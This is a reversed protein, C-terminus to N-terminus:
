AREVQGPIVFTVVFFQRHRDTQGKGRETAALRKKNSTLSIKSHIVLRVNLQVNQDESSVSFHFYLM